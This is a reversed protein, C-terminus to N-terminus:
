KGFNSSQHTWTCNRPWNICHAQPDLTSLAPFTGTHDRLQWHLVSNRVPFHVSNRSLDCQPVVCNPQSVVFGRALCKLRKAHECGTSYFSRCLQCEFSNLKSKQNITKNYINLATRLNSKQQTKQFQPKSINWHLKKSLKHVAIKSRTSLAPFSEPTIGFNDIFRPSSQERLSFSGLESQAWM